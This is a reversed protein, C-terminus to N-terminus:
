GIIKKILKGAILNTPQNNKKSIDIINKLNKKIVQLRKIIRSPKPQSHEFEDIISIVGGANVVYDPAYLIGKQHLKIGISDDSLQSNAGGLVIKCRLKEVSSKNLIGGLACPSFVDAPLRYIAAPEVIKINSFMKKAAKCREPNIDTAYITKAGSYINRILGQGINGLGQVAFSRGQVSKSGFIENLCVELAIFLGIATYKVPDIKTGVINKSKAKMIKVDDMLLGVDQGTIFKGALEDVAQVYTQLFKPRNIIIKPRIIVAKAGGYKYGAMALKYSMTKSLLLADTLAQEQNQYAWLRTAGFARKKEGFRHIAIYGKLQLASDEFFLVLQHNDYKSLSRLNKLEVIKM